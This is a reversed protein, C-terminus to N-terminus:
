PSGQAFGTVCPLGGTKLSLQGNELDLHLTAKTGYLLFERGPARVGAIATSFVMHAQAGIAFDALIDLHDPVEVAVPAGTAGDTRVKTVVKAFASM